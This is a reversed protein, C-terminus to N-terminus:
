TFAPDKKIIIFIKAATRPFDNQLINIEEENSVKDMYAFAKELSEEGMKKNNALLPLKRM